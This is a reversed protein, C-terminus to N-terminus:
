NQTPSKRTLLYDKIMKAHEFALTKPTEEFSFPQIEQIESQQKKMNGGIVKVFFCTPYYAYEIDDQIGYEHYEGIKEVISVDLGTEERVERVIAEQPKEGPECRGGPLAWYGKFPPTNRKVLLINNAPFEVIATATRGSFKRM